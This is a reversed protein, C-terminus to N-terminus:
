AFMAPLEAIPKVGGDDVAFTSLWRQFEVSYLTEGTPVAIAAIVYLQQASTSIGVIEDIWLETPVAPGEWEPIDVLVPDPLREIVSDPLSVRFLAEFDAAARTESTYKFVSLFMLPQEACVAVSAVTALDLPALVERYREESLQRLFVRKGQSTPLRPDLVAILTKGRASYLVRLATEKSQFSLGIEALSRFGM